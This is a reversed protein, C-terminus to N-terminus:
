GTTQFPINPPARTRYGLSSPLVIEQRIMTGHECVPCRRPDVGTLRTLLVAWSTPASADADQSTRVGLLDRCRQLKSNRHRTSLLGYHRIKVYRNRLALPRIQEPLTFVVHFYPIPLLEHRRAEVWREKALAQCKPCHRNRCSNYSIRKEGCHDCVDVHGGLAATRCLEIARMARQQVISMKKGYRQRYSPGYVRFIDAIEWTRSM